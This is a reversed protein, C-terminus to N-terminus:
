QSQIQNIVEQDLIKGEQHYFKPILDKMTQLVADKLKPISAVSVCFRSISERMELCSDDMFIIVDQLQKPIEEVDHCRCVVTCLIDASGVRVPVLPDSLRGKLAEFLRPYKPTLDKTMQVVERMTAVAASRVMDSTQDDLSALAMPFILALNSDFLEQNICKERLLSGLASTASERVPIYEKGSKWVMDDLVASVLSQTVAPLAKSVSLETILKYIATRAAGSTLSEIMATCVSPYIEAVDKPPSHKLLLTLFRHSKRQTDLLPPLYNGFIESLPSDFCIEFQPLADAHECIRLISTALPVVNKERFEQSKRCIAIILQAAQNIIDTMDFVRNIIFSDLTAGLDEDSFQCNVISISLAEILEKTCRESIKPLLIANVEALSTMEAFLAICRQTEEAEDPHDRLATVLTMLIQPAYRASYANSVHVLSKFAAFGLHRSHSQWDSILTLIRNIYIKFNEHLLQLASSPLKRKGDFAIEIQDGLNLDSAYKNAIEKLSKYAEYGEKVLEVPKLTENPLVPRVPVIKSLSCLIPFLYEGYMQSRQPHQVLMDECFKVLAKRVILKEDEALKELLESFQDLMYGSKILINSLTELSRRRIEVQRYTLNKRINNIVVPTNLYLCEQTCHNVVADLCDCARLKMQPDNSDFKKSLAKFADYCYEDFKTPLTEPTPLSALNKLLDVLLNSIEERDEKELRLFIMSLMTRYTDDLAKNGLQEFLKITLLLSNERVSESSDDFHFVIPKVCSNLFDVPNEYLLAPSIELDSISKLSNLRDRPRDSGLQTLLSNLWPKAKDKAPDQSM